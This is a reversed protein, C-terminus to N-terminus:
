ISAHKYKKPRRYKVYMMRMFSEMIFWINGCWSEDETEGGM